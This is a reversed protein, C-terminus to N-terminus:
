RKKSLAAAKQTKRQHSHQRISNMYIYLNKCGMIYLLSSAKDMAAGPAHGM